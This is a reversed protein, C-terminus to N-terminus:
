NMPAKRAQDLIWVVTHNLELSSLPDVETEGRVVARLYLWPDDFPRVPPPEIPSTRTDGTKRVTLDNWRGAHLVADSLYIDMDKIERPWSWSAQIVATARPYALLITADDDVDPYIGPKIQRRVTQVSVPKEGDMLWTALVAGYCGFDIVAGGGNERSSTLWRLFEPTCGIEWPGNHGHRFVMRVIDGFDGSRAQRGAERVSAYWSTEYNTLILTDNAKALQAFRDADEISFALPKEVMVPIRRPACAEIVERHSRVSGMGSVAHPKCTDLMTGLDDHRLSKDLQYRAALRDFLATDPEWVGAIVIEPSEAAKALLGEVHGHTMGAIAVRLPATEATAAALTAIALCALSLIPKEM